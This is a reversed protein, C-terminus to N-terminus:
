LEVNLIKTEARIDYTLDRDTDDIDHDILLETLMITKDGQLNREKLMMLSTKHLKHFFEKDPACLLLSRREPYYVVDIKNADGFLERALAADLYLHSSKLRIASM